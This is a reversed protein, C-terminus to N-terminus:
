HLATLLDAATDVLDYGHTITVHAHLLTAADAVDLTLVGSDTTSKALPASTVSIDGSQIASLLAAETDVLDYGHTITVHANLLTDADAVDLTVARGDSTAMALASTFSM